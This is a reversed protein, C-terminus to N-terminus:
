ELPLTSRAFIFSVQDPHSAALIPDDLNEVKPLHQWDSIEDQSLKSGVSRKRGSSGDAVCQCGSIDHTDCHSTKNITFIDKLDEPTFTSVRAMAMSEGAKKAGKSKKTGKNSDDEIDDEAGGEDDLVARGMENKVLQRQFIKEDLMGTTLLRYIWTEKTQGDRWVRAQAQTDFAPNWCSDFLVLRNAAFLNLGTGGAKTSLLFLFVSPDRQFKEVAHNRHAMDTSGDLRVLPWKKGVFIKELLDLTKTFSSVIVVKDKTNRRTTELMKELVMVKGSFRADELVFEDTEPTGTGTGMGTDTNQLIDLVNQHLPGERDEEHKPLVLSPHNCVKSLLMMTGLAASGNIDYVSEDEIAEDLKEDFVGLNQLIKNYTLIQHLTPKCFVVIEHKQPLFAELVKSTRRLIFPSTSEILELSKRAGLERAASSADPLRSAAIPRDFERKFEEISGLSGPNVFDVLAYYEGLNNQFPTGTLIVRRPVELSLLDQSLKSNPNKLRHGEDCIIIGFKISRLLEIHIRVQEYSIILLKQEISDTFRKL